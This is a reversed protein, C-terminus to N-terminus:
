TLLREVLVSVDQAMQSDDAASGVEEYGYDWWDTAVLPPERDRWNPCEGSEDIWATVAWEYPGHGGIDFCIDDSQFTVSFSVGMPPKGPKPNRSRYREIAETVASISAVEVFSDGPECVPRRRM